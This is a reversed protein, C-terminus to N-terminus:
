ELNKLYNNFNYTITTVGIFGLGFKEITSLQNRYKYVLYLMFPGYIFTDVLRIAQSKQIEM